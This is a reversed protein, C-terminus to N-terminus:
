SLSKLYEVIDLNGTKKAFRLLQNNGAHVNVGQEVLYKLVDLRNYITALRLLEVEDENIHVDAGNKVLCKVVDLQGNAIAWSFAYDDYAHINAGQEILFQINDCVLGIHKLNVEHAKWEKVVLKKLGGNYNHVECVEGVPEVEYLETGYYIFALLDERAFYIGCDSCDGSPKFPKPDINLGEHYVLGHHGKPNVIKYFKM